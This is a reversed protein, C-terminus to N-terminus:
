MNNAGTKKAKLERKRKLWWRLFRLALWSMLLLLGIWPLGAFIVIVLLALSTTLAGLARQAAGRLPDFIGRGWGPPQTFTIDLTALNTRNDLFRKRGEMREIEERIRGLEKEVELIDKLRNSSKGLLDVMRAELRKANSLRAELDIYQETVDEGSIEENKIRGLNRMAAMAQDLRDEPIRVTLSISRRGADDEFARSDAVFGGIKVIVGKAQEAALAVKGVEVVMHATRIMRREDPASEPSAERKEVDSMMSQEAVAKFVPGATQQSWCGPLALAALIIAFTPIRMIDEM